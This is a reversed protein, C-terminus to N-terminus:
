AIALLVIGAVIVLAATLRRRSEGESLVRAGLYAGILISVQRLPALNSVPNDVTSMSIAILFLIYGLSDLIGIGIAELRFQKWAARVLDRYRYSYPTLILALSLTGTWTLILPPVGYVSVVEKDWITYAGVALGCLLGYAVAPAAKARHAAFPNGTVIFVGITILISGVIVWPSPREALLLIAGVTALMPGAGRALPYVLSLDGVRYGRTLLFYYALHMITSFLLAGIQPWGFAIPQTVLTYVALPLYFLAGITNFLWVFTIDGSARKALFNWIAHTFASAMVLTFALTM